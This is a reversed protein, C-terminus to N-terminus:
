KTKVSKVASWASYYKTSGVTKFSRVKVYYKKGSLLSAMKKSVTTKKSITVTKNGSAFSSNRSYMIQYGTAKSNKGWQVKFAKSAATISSIAPRSLRYETVATSADSTYSNGDSTKYARLKYQYKAGNTTATTDTYSVTSKSTITKVLTWSGSNVRRYLKYGTAQTNKTWKIVIGKAGNTVSSIATQAPKIVVTQSGSIDNYNPNTIKYYVTICGANKATPLTTSWSDDTSTRYYVTSGSKVGSITITHAKGDYNGSYASATISYTAKFIAFYLEVTGTFDGIGTITVM